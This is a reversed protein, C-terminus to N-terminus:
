SRELRAVLAESAITRAGATRVAAAVEGDNTVVALPRGAPEARVLRVLLEDALEGVASFLVRVGRPMPLATPRTTAATGDFVVTIEAGSNRAALGGHGAV